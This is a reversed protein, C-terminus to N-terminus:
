VNFRFLMVDGDKVEYDRGELRWVGAEKAGKEGRHQIFDEYAIVEARIFGKQFDTHIVGAAADAFAGKKVTWARVEKAGATFFTILNLLGYGARIIRNLGPEELGLDELFLAKDEADLQSMEAEIKACITLVQAGEQQAYHEINRLHAQESTNLQDSTNAVYLVPKITLLNLKKALDQCATDLEAQRLTSQGLATQLAQLNKLLLQADKDGTKTQKQTKQIAKEVTDLDALCLETDIVQIDGIPDIQGHVHVVNDDEHCRVVHMIAQTERIHALFQNGLGEGQAAGAVLGAIDVFRVTTPVISKPTVLQVINDMRADPVNVIGINPEITCFPYNEADIGANSLANFLTSKGVNPLGVIGCQFSM